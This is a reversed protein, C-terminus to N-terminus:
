KGTFSIAGNGIAIILIIWLAITTLTRRTSNHHGYGHGSRRGHGYRSRDRHGYGHRSRNYHRRRTM